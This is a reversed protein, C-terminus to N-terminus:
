AIRASAQAARPPPQPLLDAISVTLAEEYSLKAAKLAAEFHSAPPSPPLEGPRYGAEACCRELDLLTVQDLARGPVVLLNEDGRISSVLLLMEARCLLHVAPLVEDVPIKLEDALELPKIGGGRSQFRRAVEFFIRSMLYSSPPALILDARRHLVATSLARHNHIMYSVEVGALVVIWLLYVWLFLLPILAFSGYIKSQVSGQYTSRIYLNFGWKLLELAIAALVGGTIAARKKVVTHPLLKYMLALAMAELTWTIT